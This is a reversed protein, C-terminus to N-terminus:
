ATEETNSKYISFLPGRSGRNLLIHIIWEFFVEKNPKEKDKLHFLFVAVARGQTFLKPHVSLAPVNKKRESALENKIIKFWTLYM